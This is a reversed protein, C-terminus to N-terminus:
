FSIGVVLVGGGFAGWGLLVSWFCFFGECLRSPKTNTDEGVRSVQRMLLSIPRLRPRLRYFPLYPGEGGAM